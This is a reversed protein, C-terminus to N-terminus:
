AAARRGADYGTSWDRRFHRGEVLADTTIVVRGDPAAVVAADDGPGLVVGGVPREGATLRAVVAAILGFEGLDGVNSTMVRDHRDREGPPKDAIDRRTADRLVPRRLSRPSPGPM